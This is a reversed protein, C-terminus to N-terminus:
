ESLKKKIRKVVFLGERERENLRTQVTKQAEELQPLIKYELANVRRKTKDIESLIRNIITEFEATVIAKELVIEYYRCAEDIRSSTGGIGYGREYLKKIIAAESIHPVEIGMINQAVVTIDPTDERAFAASKLKVIGDTAMAIAMTTQAAEYAADLEERAEKAKKIATFLELMLADRKKKLLSYGTESLSIKRKLEILESRTPNVERTALRKV